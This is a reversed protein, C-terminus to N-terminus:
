TKAVTRGAFHVQAGRKLTRYESLKMIRGDEALERDVWLKMCEDPWIASIDRWLIQVM